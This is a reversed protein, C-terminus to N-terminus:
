SGLIGFGASRDPSFYTNGFGDEPIIQINHGSQVTELEILRALLAAGEQAFAQAKALQRARAWMDSMGFAILVNDMNRIAPVDSVDTFPPCKIKVLIRLTFDANPPPNIQIRQRLAASTDSPALTILASGANVVGGSLNGILVQAQTVPKTVSKIEIQPITDIPLTTAAAISFTSSRTNNTADTWRMLFTLAPESGCTYSLSAAPVFPFSLVVPPLEYWTTSDGQQNFQDCDMRMVAERAVVDMRHSSQRVGMVRDVITPLLFIGYAANQAALKASDILGAYATTVGTTNLSGDANVALGYRAIPLTIMFQSDIWLQDNFIMEHRRTLFTYCAALNADGVLGTKQGILNAMDDLRM